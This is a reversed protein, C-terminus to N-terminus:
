RGGGYGDRFACLHRKPVCRAQGVGGGFAVAPHPPESKLPIETEVVVGEPHHEKFLQVERHSQPGGGVRVFHQCMKIFRDSEDGHSSGVQIREVGKPTSRVAASVVQLRKHGNKRAWAFSENPVIGGGSVITIAQNAGRAGIQAVAQSLAKAVYERATTNDVLGGRSTGVVGIMTHIDSRSSRENHKGM